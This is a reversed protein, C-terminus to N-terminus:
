KEHSFIEQNKIAKGDYVIHGKNLAILRSCLTEIDEYKHSVYLVTLKQTKNKKRLLSFLKSISNPDLYATIEDFLLIEPDNLFSKCLNVKTNEGASLKYVKTHMLHKINFYSTLNMIKNKINQVRYLRGFTVLNEFVSSYGNLRLLSSAFNMRQLISQANHEMNLSFFRVTGIDQKILNLMIHLLTTKGAGIPGLIGVMEGKLISFTINSLITTKAYSKGVGSFQILPIKINKSSSKM